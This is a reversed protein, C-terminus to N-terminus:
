PTPGEAAEAEARREAPPVDDPGGGLHRARRPDLHVTPEVDRLSNLCTFRGLGRPGAAAAANRTLGDGRERVSGRQARGGHAPKAQWDDLKAAARGRRLGGGRRRRGDARAVISRIAERVVPHNAEACDCAAGNPNFEIGRAPHLSVLLRWAGALAGPSFPTM